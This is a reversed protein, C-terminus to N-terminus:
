RTVKDKGTRVKWAYMALALAIVGYAVFVRFYEGIQANGMLEKGAFPALIFLSHFLVIGLVAHKTTAYNVSAGGVLLAAIAYLGVQQHSGYTAVTGINQLSIIQGYSALVTSMIMAIIRVRDVDIGSSAAVSRSQGVTRMEQGLKTNLFWQTFLCSAGICVFTLVPLRTAVLASFVSEVYTLGYVGAAIVIYVIRKQIDKNQKKDKIIWVIQYVAVIVVGIEVANLLLLRTSMLFNSIMPIFSLVYLLAVPAFITLQRKLRLDQKKIVRYGIIIISGALVALFVVDLIAIMPVNDLGYKLSGTLNIANKVGIGTSIMLTSNNIKIVGGLIFLFLLQYLGDSFYGAVLGGIMETGKMSNFLRGVLYGFIIALPTAIVACLLIGPLGEVGWLVVLFIAIQASIAGIVIGFNLGLGAVVPILLSLVMFTNRGIRTALEPVLFTLSTGSAWFALVTLLIFLITVNNRKTFDGIQQGYNNKQM